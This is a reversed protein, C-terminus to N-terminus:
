LGRPERSLRGRRDNAYRRRNALPFSLPGAEHRTGAIVCESASVCALQQAVAMSEAAEEEEEGWLREAAEEEEGWLREAAFRELNEAAERVRDLVRPGRPQTLRNQDSSSSLFRSLFGPREAKM